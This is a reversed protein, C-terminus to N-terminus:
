NIFNLNKGFEIRNVKTEDCNAEAQLAQALTYQWSLIHVHLQRDPLHKKMLTQTNSKKGLKKLLM